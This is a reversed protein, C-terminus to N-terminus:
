RHRLARVFPMQWCRNTRLRAFSADGFAESLRAEAALTWRDAGYGSAHGDNAAVMAELVEPLAGAQNDSGFTMASSM